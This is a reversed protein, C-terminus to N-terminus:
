RAAILAAIAEILAPQEGIAPEMVLEVGPHAPRASALLRPLDEKVHGGEGLFLPVIRVFAAGKAALAAIAEDLSAGHELYAIAVALAPAKKQLSLAIQEFPRRWDPDRSGHALLVVGQKL